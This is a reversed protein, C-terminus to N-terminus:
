KEQAQVPKETAPQPRFSLTSKTPRVTAQERTPAYARARDTGVAEKGYHRVFTADCAHGMLAATETPSRGARKMNAVFQHRLSYLTPRRGSINLRECARYLSIRANTYIQDWAYGDKRCQDLADFFAVIALSEEPELGRLMLTRKEGNGRGNTAKANRVQVDISQSDIQVLTAESYETPRLGILAGMQIWLATLHAFTGKHAELDTVLSRVLHDPLSKRKGASTRKPLDKPANVRIERISEAITPLDNQEFFYSCAARYLRTTAPALGGMREKLWDVFEESSGNEKDPLSRFEEILSSARQMYLTETKHIREVPVDQVQAVPNGSM